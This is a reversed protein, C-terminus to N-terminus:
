VGSDTLVTHFRCPVAEIFERSGFLMAAAMRGAKEVFKVFAFKSTRDTAMFPYLKGEETCIEAIDIRDFGGAALSHKRGNQLGSSLGISCTKELSM